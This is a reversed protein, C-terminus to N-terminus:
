AKGGQGPSQLQGQARLRKRSLAYLVPGLVIVVLGLQFASLAGLHEHRTRLLGMAILIAPPVGILAAGAVGGPVRFPRRLSPERMRLAILAAFELILSLGYLMIDLM